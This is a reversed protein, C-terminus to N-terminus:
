RYHYLDWEARGRPQLFPHLSVVSTSFIKFLFFSWLFNFLFVIFSFLMGLWCDEPPATGAPRAERRYQRVVLGTHSLLHSHALLYPAPTRDTSTWVGSLWIFWWKYSTHFFYFYESLVVPSLSDRVSYLSLMLNFQTPGGILALLFCIIFIPAMLFIFFISFLTLILFLGTWVIQTMENQICIKCLM